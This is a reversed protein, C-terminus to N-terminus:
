LRRNRRRRVGRDTVRNALYRTTLLEPARRALLGEVDTVVEPLRGFAHATTYIRMARDARQADLTRVSDKRMREVDAHDAGNFEIAIRGERYHLDPELLWGGHEDFIPENVRPKPLGALVLGARIRSEPRSRSAGDLHAM